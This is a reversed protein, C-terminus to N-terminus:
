DQGNLVGLVEKNSPISKIAGIKRVQLGSVIRAYKVAEFPSKGHSICFLFAGNFSDGAGTSDKKIDSFFPTFVSDSATAVYYGNDAKSKVVVTKIGKDLFYDILKNPSDIDWLVSDTRMNLFIIDIFDEIESFADLAEEKSWILEDYNPDFAVVLGNEKAIKFMKCVAEKASLSLSQTVGTAYVVKSSKIYEEDIDRESLLAAATKKRYYAFEKRGTDHGAVFYVGNHGDISTICRIDLGEAAWGGVLFDRFVDNAVKSVFGVKAGSRSAAIATTLTDGGYYKDLVDVYALSQPSSLEVLGEGLTILDLKNDM